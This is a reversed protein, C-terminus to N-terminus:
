ARPSQCAAGCARSDLEIEIERAGSASRARAYQPNSNVKSGTNQISPPSSLSLRFYLKTDLISGHFRFGIVFLSAM